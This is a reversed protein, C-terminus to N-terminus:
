NKSMYGKIKSNKNTYYLSKVNYKNNYVSKVNNYYGGAYAGSVACTAESIALFSVFNNTQEYLFNIMNLYNDNNLTEDYNEKLIVIIEINNKDFEPLENEKDIMIEYADEGIKIYFELNENSIQKKDNNELYITKILYLLITKVDYLEEEIIYDDMVNSMIKIM